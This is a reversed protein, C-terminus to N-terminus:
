RRKSWAFTVAQAVLCPLLCPRPQMLLRAGRGTYGGSYYNSEGADATEWARGLGPPGQLREAAQALRRKLRQIQRRSLDLALAAEDTTLRGELLAKCTEYRQVQNLTLKVEPDIM